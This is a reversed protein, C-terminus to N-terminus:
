HLPNVPPRELSVQPLGMYDRSDIPLDPITITKIPLGPLDSQASRFSLLLGLPAGLKMLTEQTPNGQGREIRSIEPQPVGSLEALRAQTLHASTRETALQHGLGFHEEYVAEYHADFAEALERQRPTARENVEAMYDSFKTGM